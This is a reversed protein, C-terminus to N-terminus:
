KVVEYPIKLKLQADAPYLEEAQVERKHGEVRYSIRGYMNRKLATVRAIFPEDFFPYVAILTGPSVHAITRNVNHKM